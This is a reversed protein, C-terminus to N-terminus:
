FLTKDYVILYALGLTVFFFFSFAFRVRINWDCDGIIFFATTTYVLMTIIMKIKRQQQKNEM